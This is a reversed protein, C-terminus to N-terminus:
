TIILYFIISKIFFLTTDSNPGSKAVNRPSHVIKGGKIPIGREKKNSPCTTHRGERVTLISTRLFRDDTNKLNVVLLM